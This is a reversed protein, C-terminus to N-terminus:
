QNSCVALFNYLLFKCAPQNIYNVCSSFFVCRVVVVVVVVVANMSPLVCTINGCRLQSTTYNSFFFLFM